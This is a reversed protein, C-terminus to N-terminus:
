SKFFTEGEEYNAKSNLFPAAAEFLFGDRGKPFARCLRHRIRLSCCSEEKLIHVNDANMVQGGHMVLRFPLTLSLFQVLFLLLGLQLKHLDRYHPNKQM